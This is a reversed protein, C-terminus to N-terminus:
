LTPRSGQRFERPSVGLRKKVFKGFSSITPFQFENALEKISKGSYKLEHAIGDTTYGLIWELAPKGSLAKTVSSLYKPTICLQQAYYNVSREKGGNMAVMEIFRKFIINGQNGEDTKREPKIERNMVVCIEYFIAEMLSHMIERYYFEKDTQLKKRVVLFYGETLELDIDLLHFVPHRTAYLLLSWIELGSCVTKLFKQYSLAFIVAKFDPSSLLNDLYVGPPCILMDKEKVTIPTGNHDLHLIGHECIVILVMEMEMSGVRKLSELSNLILMDGDRYNAREHDSLYKMGVRQTSERQELNRM